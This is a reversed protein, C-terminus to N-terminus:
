LGRRKFVDTLYEGSHLKILMPFTENEIDMIYNEWNESIHNILSEKSNRKVYRDLYEEKLYMDPYVITYPINYVQLLERVEKHTSILIYEVKGINLKIEKIYNEPFDPNLEGNENHSFNSSDLDLVSLNDLTTLHSKGVGPFGAIIRTKVVNM